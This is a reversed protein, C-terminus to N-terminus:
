CFGPGRGCVRPKDKPAMLLANTAKLCGILILKVLGQCAHLQLSNVSSGGLGQGCLVMLIWYQRFLGSRSVQTAREM